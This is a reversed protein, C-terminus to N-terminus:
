GFLGSAYKLLDVTASASVARIASSYYPIDQGNYDCSHGNVDITVVGFDDSGLAADVLQTINVQGLVDTSTVNQQLM